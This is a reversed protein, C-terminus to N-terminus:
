NFGNMSGSYRLDSAAKRTLKAKEQSRKKKTSAEAHAVKVKLMGGRVRGLLPRNMEAALQAVLVKQRKEDSGNNSMEHRLNEDMVIDADRAAQILWNNKSKKKSLKVQLIALKKAINCRTHLQKMSSLYTTRYLSQEQAAVLSISIGETNARATRGSRHVFLETSRPLHYNVVHEVLPIDLGRAAVDTAVLITNKEARFRDLNKLRARQQMKAHLSYAPLKLLQLLVTLRKVHSIANVFILTRGAYESFFYYLYAYLELGDPLSFQSKKKGYQIIETKSPTKTSATTVDIIAPTSFKGCGCLLTGSNQVNQNNNKNSKRQERGQKKLQKKQKQTNPSVANMPLSNTRNEEENVDDNVDSSVIDDEDDESLNVVDDDFDALDNFMQALEDSKKLKEFIMKLEPYSGPSAMRDAEDIALFNVASLDNLHEQGDRMLQWLRGPTGVIIEPRKALLRDQKVQAMGGVLAMVNIGTDCSVKIIHRTVQLALERTPCIILCRLRTDESQQEQEVIGDMTDRPVLIPLSFALTKGSGTEAAGLVDKGTTVAAAICKLQIPTPTDFGLKQLNAILDSHLNLSEWASMDCHNKTRFETGLSNNRTNKQVTGSLNKKLLKREEAVTIGSAKRRKRAAREKSRDRKRKKKKKESSVTTSNVNNCKEKQTNPNPESESNASNTTVTIRKTLSYKKAGGKGKKVEVTSGDLVELGLFGGESWSMATEMTVDVSQWDEGDWPNELNTKHKVM